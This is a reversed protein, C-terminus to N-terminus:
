SNIKFQFKISNSIILKLVDGWNTNISSVPGALSNGAIHRKPTVIKDAWSSSTVQVDSNAKSVQRSPNLISRYIVVTGQVYWRVWFKMVTPLVSKKMFWSITGAQFGLYQQKLQEFVFSRVKVVTTYDISHVWLWKWLWKWDSVEVRWFWNM